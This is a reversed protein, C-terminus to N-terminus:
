FVVIKCAKYKEGNKRPPQIEFEVVDNQDIRHIRAADLESKHLFVDSGGNDPAIFGYGKERNYWKVIGGVREGM